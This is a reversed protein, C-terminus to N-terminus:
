GDVEDVARGIIGQFVPSLQFGAFLQQHQANRAANPQRSNLQAFRHARSHDGGGRGVFLQRDALLMAGVQRDVVGFAVQLIQDALNRAATHVDNIVGNAVFQRFGGKAAQVPFAPEQHDAKRAPFDRFQRQVEGQQFRSIQPANEPARPKRPERILM